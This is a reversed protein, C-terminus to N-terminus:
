SKVHGELSNKLELLSVLWEIENKYTPGLNETLRKKFEQPDIVIRENKQTLALWTSATHAQLEHRIVQSVAKSFPNPALPVADQFTEYRESQRLQDDAIILAQLVEDFRCKFIGEVSKQDVHTLDGIAAFLAGKDLIPSLLSNLAQNAAAEVTGGKEFM